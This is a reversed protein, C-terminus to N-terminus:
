DLVRCVLLASFFDCLLGKCFGGHLVLFSARASRMGGVLGLLGFVLWQEVRKLSGKKGRSGVMAGAPASAKPSPAGVLSAVVEKPLDAVTLLPLPPKGAAWQRVIAPHLSRAFTAVDADEPANVTAAQVARNRAETADAYSPGCWVTTNSYELTVGAGNGPAARPFFLLSPSGLFRHLVAARSRGSTVVPGTVALMGPNDPLRKALLPLVLVMNLFQLVFVINLPQLVFVINLFQPAFVVNLLQLNFVNIFQLNLVV